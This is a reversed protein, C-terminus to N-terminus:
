DRKVQAALAAIEPIEALFQDLAETVLQQASRNKVTSALRLKLHREADLRLTFAARRGRALAEGMEADESLSRIISRQQRRVVPETASPPASLPSLPFVNEEGYVSHAPTDHDEGMDNWGLDELAEEEEPQSLAQPALAGLPTVQPRMAPRAGGKRALLTPGLSAFPKPETLAAM